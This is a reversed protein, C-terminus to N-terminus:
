EGGPAPGRGVPRRGSPPSLPEPAEGTQFRWSRDLVVEGSVGADKLDLQLTTPRVRPSPVVLLQYDGGPRPAWRLELLVTRAQGAPVDIQFGVVPRGAESQMVPPAATVDGAAADLTAGAPLYLSVSARYLGAVQGDDFPGFVYRPETVGAPATNSVTIAAQVKGFRGAPRDGSLELRTDVYYDLKNASTNQVTLAVADAGDLSPLTGDAGFFGLQRQAGAAVSHMVIHRGDTARLLAEGLPRLSSYEGDVLAEFAAEAVDGLVDSRQEIDPYLSYARNLVLDVVNEAAVMGVEPVEVPGVGELLAALGQPDIQIVGSAKNGTAQAYMAELVPATVELDAALTANRWRQLPDFGEWRELYDEPVEGSISSLPVPVDLALEDIRGFEELEFDGGRGILVGYNLVMGGSGRMEATNAVAILYRRPGNGGAMDALLELGAALGRLQTRRRIAEEMVRTRVEGVQGFLSREPADLAGPLAGAVLSAERGVERVADLPIAGSRLPTELSGDPGELPQAARLIRGGGNVLTAAVAVSERLQELDDSLVPLASVVELEPRGYLASTASTLLAGADDLLERVESFRGEELAISATDVLDAAERLDQAASAIRLGVLLAVAAVAAGLVGAVLAM